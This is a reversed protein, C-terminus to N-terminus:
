RRPAQRAARTPPVPITGAGYKAGDRNETGRLFWIYANPSSALVNPNPATIHASLPGPPNPLAEMTAPWTLGDLTTKLFQMCSVLTM